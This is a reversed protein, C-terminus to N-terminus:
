LIDGPFNTTTLAPFHLVDFLPANDIGIINWQWNEDLLQKKNCYKRLTMILSHVGIAM